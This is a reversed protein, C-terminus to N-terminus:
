RGEIYTDRHGFTGEKLFLFLVSVPNTSERIVNSLETFVRERLLGWETIPPYSKLVHIKPPCLEIWLLYDSYFEDTLCYMRFRIKKEMPSPSLPVTVLFIQFTIGLTHPGFCNAKGVM